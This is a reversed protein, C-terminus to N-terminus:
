LDDDPPMFVSAFRDAIKPASALERVRELIKAWDL